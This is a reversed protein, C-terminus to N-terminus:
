GFFAEGGNVHLTQGTIFGSADCVLFHSADAVEKVQGARGLPIGDASPPSNGYWQPNARETDITGPSVINVRVNNPAFEKALGRSLGVLGMKAASIHARKPNGKYSGVGTFLVVRGFGREAMDPITGLCLHMASDLILSRVNEWQEFSLEAFPQHPRVAVTHILIDIQGMQENASDLLARCGAATGIDSLVTHATSGLARIDEATQTLGAANAHAGITLDCGAAALRLAIAKGINRSAGTVLAKKGQLESM